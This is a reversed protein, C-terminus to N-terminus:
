TVRRAELLRTEAVCFQVMDLQNPHLERGERGQVELEWLQLFRLVELERNEVERTQVRTLHLSCGGKCVWRKQEEM